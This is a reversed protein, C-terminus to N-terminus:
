AEECTGFANLTAGVCSLAGECDSDRLCDAGEPFLGCGSDALGDCNDDTGTGCTEELVLWVVGVISIQGINAPRNGMLFVWEADGDSDLNGMAPLEGHSYTGLDSWPDLIAVEGDQLEVTRPPESMRSGAFAQANPPNIANIVTYASAIPTETRNILATRTCLAQNERYYEALEPTDACEEDLGFGFPRLFLVLGRFNPNDLSLINGVQGDFECAGLEPFQVGSKASSVGRTELQPTGEESVTIEFEIM